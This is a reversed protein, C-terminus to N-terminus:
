DQGDHKRKRPPLGLLPGKVWGVSNSENEDYSVYREGGIREDGQAEPKRRNMM